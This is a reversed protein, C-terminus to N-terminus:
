GSGGGAGLTRNVDSEVRVLHARMEERALAADGDAIATRITRHQELSREPTGPIPFIEILARRIVDRVARMSHLILGNRTAEAIALHFSLDADIYREGSTRLGEAMEEIAEDMLTLHADTRREAALGAAECEVIRRLEYIDRMSAQDLSLLLQLSSNLPNAYGAVVFSGNGVPEILGRSELMRLAERVSSRGARYLRTLEREPPLVDGPRLRREGIQSLLQEAILEYVKRREIPEYAAEPGADATQVPHLPSDSL